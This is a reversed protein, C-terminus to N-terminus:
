RRGRSWVPIGQANRLTITKDATKIERALLADTEGFKVKSGTVEIQDGKAFKINNQTLYWSPGAHVDITENDTKLSLHLGTSRGPGPVEKVAEVSGKLTVVTAPDYMPESRSRPPGAQAWALLTAFTLTVILPTLVVLLKIQTAYRKRM